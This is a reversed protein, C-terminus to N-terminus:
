CFCILLHAICSVFLHVIIARAPVTKRIIEIRKIAELLKVYSLTAASPVQVRITQSVERVDTFM